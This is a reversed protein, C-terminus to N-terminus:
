QVFRLVWLGSNIDSAVVLDGDVAVGWVQAGEGLYNRVAEPATGPPPVWAAIERPAAPDQIDLVRVGDSFWSAFLLDGRVVPNHASFRGPETPGTTPDVLSRPTAYTSIARPAAPDSLDWFRLGGFNEYGRLEESLTVTVPEGRALEAKLREGAAHGIGFAGLPGDASNPTLPTDLSNIIVAGVAGAAKAREIKDAFPCTGRDLLAIRGSPDAPYADSADVRGGGSVRGEWDGAPCGRGLYALQGSVTPTDGWPPAPLTGGAPVMGAIEAPSDVRLAHSEIDLVEDGEIMLRGDPTVDVSHANGEADPPFSTRGLLVPASPDTLDFIMVGADWYSVYARMGDPSAHAGHAYVLTDIGQGDYQGLGLNARAGWDALPVPARPDTVDVIRFDGLHDAQSAESFPVTLLALVRGDTRQVLDLEHVGGTGPGVDSFGLRQPHHPDTVDWLDVGRLADGSCAQLGVALLDGQFSPTDVSRVRMVEASTGEHEALTSVLVPNAPDALDVVKVGTGPCGRLRDNGAAWTGVYAFGHHLWVDANM